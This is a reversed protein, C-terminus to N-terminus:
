CYPQYGSRSAGFKRELEWFYGNGVYGNENYVGFSNIYNYWGKVNKDEKMCEKRRKRLFKLAKKRTQFGYSEDVGIGNYYYGGEAPEYIPYLYYLTVYYPYKEEPKQIEVANVYGIKVLSAMVKDIIEKDYGFEEVLDPEILAHKAVDIAATESEATVYMSKSHPPLYSSTVKYTHKMRNERFYDINLPKEEDFFEFTDGNLIGTITLEFYFNGDNGIGTFLSYYNNDGPVLFLVVVQNNWDLPIEQINANKPVNAMDLLKRAVVAKNLSRCNISEMNCIESVLRMVKDRM